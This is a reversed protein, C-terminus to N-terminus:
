VHARGIESPKNAAAAKIKLTELAQSQKLIKKSLAESSGGAANAKEKLAALLTSQEALDANLKAGAQAASKEKGQLAELKETAENLSLTNKDAEKSMQRFADILHLAGSDDSQAKKIDAIKKAYRDSDSTMVKLPERTKNIIDMVVSLSMKM